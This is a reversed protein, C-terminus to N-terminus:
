SLFFFSRTEITFFFIRYVYLRQLFLLLISTFNWGQPFPLSSFLHLYPSVAVFATLINFFISDVLMSFPSRSRQSSLSTIFQAVISNRGKRILIRWFLLRCNLFLVSDSMRNLPGKWVSQTAGLRGAPCWRRHIKWDFRTGTVAPPKNARHNNWFPPM